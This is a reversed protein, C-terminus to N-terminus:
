KYNWLNITSGGESDKVTEEQESCEFTVRKATENHNEARKSGGRRQSEGLRRNLRYRLEKGPLFVASSYLQGSVEM